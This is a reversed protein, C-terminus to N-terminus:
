TKRRELLVNGWRDITGRWKNPIWMTAFAEVVLAPGTLRNGARLKERDYLTM